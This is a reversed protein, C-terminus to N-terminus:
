AANEITRYKWTISSVARREVYELWRCERKGTRVPHWAFWRHWKLSLEFKEVWSLGCNFIM